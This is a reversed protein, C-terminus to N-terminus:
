GARAIEDLHEWRMQGRGGELDHIIRALARVRPVPRGARDAADILAGLIFEAETKRHRVALDRWVGTRRALGRKWYAIQAAWAADAARTDGPPGLRVARPDFGDVPEVKIELAEAVNCAETAVASLARRAGVQALIDVVDADVTATAFYITGLILKGWLFGQINDTAECPHFDSLVQALRRARPTIRGDIEGVRLSAPGSYVIRGPRDYYGGFTLFAGITRDVGVMAAIKSEELGNQMSVVVGDKDLLPVFPALAERTHLTKVALILTGIPGRTEHPLCAAVRVTFPSAGAIELGDHQIAEIHDRERDVLLISHGARALHGGVLGGIAGAGVITLNM